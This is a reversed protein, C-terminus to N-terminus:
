CTDPFREAPHKYFIQRNKQSPRCESIPRILIISNSTPSFTIGSNGSHFHICDRHTKM